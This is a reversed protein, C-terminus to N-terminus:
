LNSKVRRPKPVHRKWEEDVTTKEALSKRAWSDNFAQEEEGWRRIERGFWRAIEDACADVAEFPVQHSCGQLVAERVRGAAVGGSGGVGTGTNQLRDARMEAQCIPSESAFIYLVSPRLYPLQYFMQAIEPRYFPMVTKLQPDLDPHTLRNRLHDPGAGPVPLNYYPRAFSALEKALPTTLTVPVPEHPKGSTNTVSTHTPIDRLGYTVFRDLARPDWTKYFPNQRFSCAAADRSPWTDRRYTLLQLRPGIMDSQDFLTNNLLATVPRLIAPDLLVLTHILRPHM